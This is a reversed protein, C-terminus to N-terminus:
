GVAGERGTQRPGELGRAWLLTYRAMFFIVPDTLSWSGAPL